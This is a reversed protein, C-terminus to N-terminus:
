ERTLHATAWRVPGGGAPLGPRPPYPGPCVGARYGRAPTAANVPHAPARPGPPGRRPLPRARGAGAHPVLVHPGPRAAPWPLRAAHGGARAPHLDSSRRTTFP